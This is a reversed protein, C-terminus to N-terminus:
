GSIPRSRNSPPCRRTTAGELLTMRVDWDSSHTGRPLCPGGRGRLRGARDFAAAVGTHRHQMWWARHPAIFAARRCGHRILHQGVQFGADYGDPFVHPVTRNVEMSSVIVCPIGAEALLKESEQLEAEDNIFALAIVGDVGADIAKCVTEDLRMFSENPLVTNIFLTEHEAGALEQELSAVVQRTWVNHGFGTDQAPLFLTAVVAIRLEQGKATLASSATVDSVFTGRRDDSRLMGEKELAEIARGVTLTSTNFNRALERRGPLMAGPRFDGSAVRQRILQEIEQHRLM